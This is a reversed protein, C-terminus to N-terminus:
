WAARFCNCRAAMRCPLTRTAPRQPLFPHAHQAGDDGAGAHHRRARHHTGRTGDFFGVASTRVYCRDGTHVNNLLFAGNADTTTSSGAVTVVAGSIRMGM